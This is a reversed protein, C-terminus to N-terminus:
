QSASLMSSNLFNVASFLQQPIINSTTCPETYYLNSTHQLRGLQETVAKQWEDDAIGFINVAIGSGLDIYEKGATDVLRAGKGDTFAVPFRGYTHAIYENDISFIDSM